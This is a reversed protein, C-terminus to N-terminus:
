LASVRHKLGVRQAFCKALSKGLHLVRRSEVVPGYRHFHFASLKGPLQHFRIGGKYSHEVDTQLFATPAEQVVRVFHCQRFLSREAQEAGSFYQPFAQLHSAVLLFYRGQNGAPSFVGVDPIVNHASHSLIIHEPVDVNESNAVAEPFAHIRLCKGSLQLFM